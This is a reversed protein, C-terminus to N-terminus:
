VLGADPGLRQLAARLDAAVRQRLSAPALVEAHPSLGMVIFRAQEEDDFEVRLTAWGEENPADGLPSVTRWRRLSEAAGRELRLTAQYRSRSKLEETSAQWYAALDFGPPRACPAALAEAEEIRSVRYTRLGDPTRAV